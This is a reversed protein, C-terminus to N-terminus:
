PRGGAPQHHRPHRQPVRVQQASWLQKLAATVAAQDIVVGNVVAGEPLPVQGLGHVTVSPRGEHTGPSLIAARVATAGIDVGIAHGDPNIM